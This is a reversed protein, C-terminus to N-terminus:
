CFEIKREMNHCASVSTKLGQSHSAVACLLSSLIVELMKCTAWRYLFKCTLVPLKYFNAFLLAHYSLNNAQVCLLSAVMVVYVYVEFCSAVWQTSVVTSHSFDFQMSNQGHCEIIFDAVIAQTDDVVM